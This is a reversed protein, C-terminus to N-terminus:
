RASSVAPNWDALEQVALSQAAETATRAPDNARLELRRGADTRGTMLDSTYTETSDMLVYGSGWTIDYVGPVTLHIWTRDDGPMASWAEMDVARATRLTKPIDVGSIEGSSVSVGVWPGIIRIGVKAAIVVPTGGGSPTLRIHSADFWQPPGYYVPSIKYRRAEPTLFGGRRARLVARARLTRARRTDM